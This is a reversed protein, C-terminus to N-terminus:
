PEPIPEDLQNIPVPPSTLRMFTLTWGAEVYSRLIGSLVILIPLYAVFCIGALILSSRIAEEGGLLIPIVASGITLILPLGIILGGITTIGLVLILWMLIIMGANLKVVEWGRKLGDVVGLNEVVIAISSQEVVVSVFLAIPILLCILPIICLFLGIGLTAATGLIAIIVILIIAFFIVLGVMLNLLFVRWFYPMSGKFLEGFSLKTEEDRDAQQTGRILGIRGITGLFVALLILVLIVLFIIIGIMILQWDPTQTFFNEIGSPLEGSQSQFSSGSNTGGSANSCSAFIGFIWLVKNKWVIKWARSLVEGINM